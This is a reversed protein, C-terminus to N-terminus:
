PTKEQRRTLEAGRPANKIDRQKDLRDDSQWAPKSRSAVFVSIKPTM